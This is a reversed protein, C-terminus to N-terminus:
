CAAYSNKSLEKQEAKGNLFRARVCVGIMQSLQLSCDNRGKENAVVACHLQLKNKKSGKPKRAACKM